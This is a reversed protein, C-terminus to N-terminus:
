RHAQARVITQALLAADAGVGYLLSSRRTRLYPVGCFHLGPVATGLDDGAIPFGLDDFIPFHIWRKYDPRFGATLIVAGFGHLDV